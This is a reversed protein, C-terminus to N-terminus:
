PLLYAALAMTLAALSFLITGIGLENARERSPKYRVALRLIASQRAFDLEGRLL